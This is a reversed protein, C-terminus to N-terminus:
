KERGSLLAFAADEGALITEHHAAKLSESVVSPRIGRLLAVEKQTDHLRSQYSCAGQKATWRARVAGMLDFLANLTQDRERGFGLFRVWVRRSRAERLAERAAHFCSGDLLAPNSAQEPPAPLPGTTITGRGVGFVLPPFGASGFLRDTLEQVVHVIWGPKRFLAQCEDGATLVLPAALRAPGLEESLERTWDLLHSQFRARDEQRRSSVVDGILAVYPPEAM